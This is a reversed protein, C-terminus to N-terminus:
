CRGLVRYDGRKRDASGKMLQAKSISLSEMLNTHANGLSGLTLKGDEQKTHSGHDPHSIHDATGVGSWSM